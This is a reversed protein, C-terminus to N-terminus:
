TKACLRTKPALRITLGRLDSKPTYADDDGLNASRLRHPPRDYLEKYANLRIKGAPV